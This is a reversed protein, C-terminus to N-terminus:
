SAIGTTVDIGGSIDALLADPATGLPIRTEYYAMNEPVTVHYAGFGIEKLRFTRWDLNADLQDSITISEAYATASSQNAFNITYPLPQGVPVFARPGYGTPGQKENPDHPQQQCPNGQWSANGGLLITLLQFGCQIDHNISAANDCLTTVIGGMGQCAAKDGFYALTMCLPFCIPADPGCEASVEGCFIISHEISSATLALDCSNAFAEGINQCSSSGLRLMKKNNSISTIEQSYNADVLGTSSYGNMMATQWNEQNEAIPLTNAYASVAGNIIQQRIYECSSTLQQLFATTTLPEALVNIQVQPLQSPTFDVTFTIDDGPALERFIMTDQTQGAIATVTEFKRLYSTLGDRSSTSNAQLNDNIMTEIQVYPIDVNGINAVVCHTPIQRGFRQQDPPTVQLGLLMGTSTEVTVAQAIKGIHGDGNSVVVDYVGHPANALQFCATLTASNLVTVTAATLTTGGLVLQVTAPGVLNAGQITLTVQGTDGITSPAVPGVGFPLVVALVTAPITAGDTLRACGYYEVDTAAAPIVITQTAQGPSSYLLDFADRTALAGARLFLETSPTPNDTTPTGSLTVQVTDGAPVHLKFYCGDPTLGGTDWPDGLTLEPVDVSMAQSSGTNNTKDTEYVLGTADTRVLVYYSGPDVLPLM